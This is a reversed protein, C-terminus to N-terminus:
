PYMKNDLAVSTSEPLSLSLPSWTKNMCVELSRGSHPLSGPSLIKQSCLVLSPHSHTGVAAPSPGWSPCRSGPPHTTTPSTLWWRGVAWTSCTSYALYPRWAVMAYFKSGTGKAGQSSYIKPNKKALCLEHQQLTM